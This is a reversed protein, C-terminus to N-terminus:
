KNKEMKAWSDKLPVIRNFVLGDSGSDQDVSYFGERIFQFREGVKAQGLWPELKCNELQIMSNPNLQEEAYLPEYLRIKASLAHAASVWHITGKVKKQSNTGSKTDPDYTCRIETLVGTAPDKVVEECLIVYGHKLRVERGPALRFFKKVPEEMFDSADIYLERSFPVPRTGAGPDEPNLEAELMEVQDEPYNTLVVKVPNLVAM